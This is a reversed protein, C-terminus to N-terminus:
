IPTGSQRQGAHAQDHFETLPPLAVSRPLIPGSASSAGAKCPARRREHVEAGAASRDTAARGSVRFVRLRHPSVAPRKGFPPAEGARGASRVSKVRTGLASNSGVAPKSLARLQPGSRLAELMRDAAAGEMNKREYRSNCQPCAFIGPGASNGALTRPEKCTSCDRRRTQASM